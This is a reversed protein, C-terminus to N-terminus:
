SIFSSVEKNTPIKTKILLQFKMSLQTSGSFLKIVEPGTSVKGLGEQALTEMMKNQKWTVFLNRGFHNTINRPSTIWSLEINIDVYWWCLLSNHGKRAAISYYCSIFSQGICAPFWYGFFFPLSSTQLQLKNVKWHLPKDTKAIKRITGRKLLSIMEDALLVFNVRLAGLFFHM